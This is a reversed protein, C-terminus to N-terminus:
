TPQTTESLYNRLVPRDAGYNTRCTMCVMGVTERSSGQCSPCSVLATYGHSTETIRTVQLSGGHARQYDRAAEESGGSWSSNGDVVWWSEHTRTRAEHDRIITESM